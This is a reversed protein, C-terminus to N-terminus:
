ITGISSVPFPSDREKPIYINSVCPNTKHHATEMENISSRTRRSPDLHPQTWIPVTADSGRTQARRNQHQNTRQELFGGPSETRKPQDHPASGHIQKRSVKLAPVNRLPQINEASESADFRRQPTTPDQIQELERSSTEKYQYNNSSVEIIILDSLHQESRDTGLQLRPLSCVHLRRTARTHLQSSPFFIHFSSFLHSFFLSTVDQLGKGHHTRECPLGGYYLHQNQAKPPLDCPPAKIEIGGPEGERKHRQARSGITPARRESVGRPMSCIPLSSCRLM